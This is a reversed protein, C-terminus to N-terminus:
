LPRAYFLFQTANNEVIQMDSIDVGGDGTCDTNYYGFYFQSADNEIQQMDSIDVGGDGNIDGTLLAFKNNGMNKMPLNIGNSYANSMSTTFDFNTNAGILIPSVSWTEMANEHNIAIYYSNGYTAPPFSASVNGNSHLLAKVSYDPNNNSLHNSKWLHISVSDTADSVTSLGLDYLTTHMLGNGIYFGELFLKLNLVTNVNYPNVTLNLIAASDCGAANILQATYVGSSTYSVGNWVYPLNITEVTATKTSSTPQKITLNLSVTSDCGAANTTIWVKTGSTTYTTGKWTYSSCASIPSLTSNSASNVNITINNSNATLSAATTITCSIIDGNSLSSATYGNSNTGVAVGNKKWQFVPNTGGNTPSATFTISSGACISSASASISISPTLPTYTTVTETISTAKIANKVGYFTPGVVYPYASNWSADVTAFYCYKGNPYEPTVCFRGNHEDLYDPTSSSTSTYKYDERFYGLPYTSSVDPGSTVSTGDAYTTRTTINRLSYSSKMRVVGGTGNTNKYAYAGYIPFGDYAFGILPSHQTSDIKYLGDATYLNCITSIVSLDLNFASPNQHHHYNGNAPHGKACDFGGKEAIVADRTWVGDGMGGSPGGALSNTSNKWSVGDRYDFLSVGNVFVGINGGTTSTYTGSNNQQPNLPFKYIAQQNTTITPNASFPGTIYSPVGTARVYVWQNSYFVGQVNASDNDAIPTSNGSVYHRGKIGTTNQLWNLIVPNTQALSNFQFFLCILAITNKLFTLRM